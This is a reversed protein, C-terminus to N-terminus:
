VCCGKSDTLTNANSLECATVSLYCCECISHKIYFPERHPCQHYTTPNGPETRSSSTTCISTHHRGRCNSCRGSSRCDRSIHCRKLCIFCRGTTRLIRKREEPNTVTPCSNSTHSQNCYACTIQNSASAVLSLATPPPRASTGTKRAQQTLAGMSRERAVVEREVIEMM